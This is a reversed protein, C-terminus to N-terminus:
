NTDDAGATVNFEVWARIAREMSQTLAVSTGPDLDGSEAESFEKAVAEWFADEGKQLAAKIRADSVSAM